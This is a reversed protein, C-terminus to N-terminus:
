GRDVTISRPMFIGFHGYASPDSIPFQSKGHRATLNGLTFFHLPKGLRDNWSQKPSKRPDWYPDYDGIGSTHTIAYLGRDAVYQPNLDM